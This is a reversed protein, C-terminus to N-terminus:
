VKEFFLNDHFIDYGELNCIEYGKTEMLDKYIIGNEICFLRVNYEDFDLDELVELEAGEIDLNIFDIDKPANYKKLLKNISISPVDYTRDGAAGNHPHKGFINSCGVNQGNYESLTVTKLNRHIAGSYFEVGEVDGYCSLINATHLVSPEVLIGFWEYTDLLKFTLSGSVPCATAIDILYGGQKKKFYDIIFRDEDGASRYAQNPWTMNIAKKAINRM